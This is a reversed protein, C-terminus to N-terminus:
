ASPDSARGLAGIEQLHLFGFALIQAFHSAISGGARRIAPLFVACEIVHIAAMGWFLKRGVGALTSEPAIFFSGLCFAWTVILIIKGPHM